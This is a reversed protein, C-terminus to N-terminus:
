YLVFNLRVNTFIKKVGSYVSDMTQSCLKVVDLIEGFGTNRIQSYIDQMDLPLDIDRIYIKLYILYFM